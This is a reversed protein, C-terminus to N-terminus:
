KRRLRKEHGPRRWKKRRSRSQVKRKKTSQRRQAKQNKRQLRADSRKRPQRGRRIHLPRPAHKPKEPKIGRNKKMSRRAFSARSWHAVLLRLQSGFAFACWQSPAYCLM